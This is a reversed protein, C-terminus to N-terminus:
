RLGGAPILRQEADATAARMAAAPQRLMRGHGVALVSPELEALRKASALATERHWTALAPFPFLPRLHGAVALGGHLQYADGAILVGSRTDMFAMHGPTHGPTAIALLSGIRDGDELLRDRRDAFAAPIKDVLEGVRIDVEFPFTGGLYEVDAALSTDDFASRGLVTVAGAPVLHKGGVVRLLTTKGAGNAGVLAVIEGASVRLSVGWLVRVDRYEAQLDEVDLLPAEADPPAIETM